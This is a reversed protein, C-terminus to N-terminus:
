SPTLALDGVQAKKNDSQVSLAALQFIVRLIRLQLACYFLFIIIGSIVYCFPILVVISPVHKGMIFDGGTQLSFAARTLPGSGIWRDEDWVWFDGILEGPLLCM